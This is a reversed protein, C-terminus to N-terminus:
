PYVLYGNNQEGDVFNENILTVCENIASPSLGNDNGEGGLIANAQDLVEQVSWGDCPCDEKQILLDALLYDDHNSFNEDYLDFGVNLTLAVTQGALVNINGPNLYDQELAEPRGGQPLFAQVAAASELIITYMSGAVLGEPFAQEFHADRYVGPNNGNAAVGWGGQTQTRFGEAVAGEGNEQCIVYVFEGTSAPETLVERYVLTLGLEHMGGGSWFEEAFVDIINEGESFGSLEPIAGSMFWGDTEPFVSYDQDEVARGEMGLFQTNPEHFLITGGWFLLEENVFLYLNDNMPIVEEHGPNVSAM